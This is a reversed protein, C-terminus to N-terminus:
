LKIVVAFKANVIPLVRPIILAYDLHSTEWRLDHKETKSLPVVLV